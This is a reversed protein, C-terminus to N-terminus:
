KMITGRELTIQSTHIAERIYGVCGQFGFVNDAELSTQVLGLRMECGCM